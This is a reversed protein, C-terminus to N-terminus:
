NNKATDAEQEDIADFETAELKIKDHEDQTIINNEYLYRRVVEDPMGLENLMSNANQLIKLDHDPKDFADIVSPSKFSIKWNDTQIGALSILVKFIREIPAIMKAQYQEIYATMNGIDSKGTSNMGDPSKGLLLTAPIGCAASLREASRTDIDALGTLSQSLIQMEDEADMVASGFLGVTSDLLGMRELVMESKGALVLQNLDKLKYHRISSRYTINAVSTMIVQDNVIATWISQYVSMGYYKYNPAQRTVTPVGIFVACFSEDASIGLTSFNLIGPKYTNGALPSVSYFPYEVPIIELTKYDRPKGLPDQTQDKLLLVSSGYIDASIQAGSILNKIKLKDYLEWVKDQGAENDMELTLGNKMARYVSLAVIRKGVWSDMYVNECVEQKLRYNRAFTSNSLVDKKSQLDGARGFLMKFGSSGGINDKIAVVSHEIKDKTKKFFNM